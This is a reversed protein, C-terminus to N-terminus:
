VKHTIIAEVAAALVGVVITAALAALAFLLPKAWGRRPYNDGFRSKIYGVQPRGSSYYWTFLLALFIARTM